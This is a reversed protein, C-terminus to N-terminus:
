GDRRIAPHMPCTWITGPTAAIDRKGKGALPPANPPPANTPSPLPPPLPTLYKQPDAIFKERCKAGCFFYTAGDHMARHPTKAPDVSMGCVVDKVTAARAAPASHDHHHAAEADNM